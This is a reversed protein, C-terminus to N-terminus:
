EDIMAPLSEEKPYYEVLRNRHVTKTISPDKNDQIQYTTSTVRQYCHFSGVTMTTTKPKKISRAPSKRSSSESRRRFPTM